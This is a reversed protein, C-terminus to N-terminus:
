AIKRQRADAKPKASKLPTHAPINPFRAPLVIFFRETGDADFSSRVGYGKNKLDWGFGSRVTAETWPNNGGSLGDQLEAMTAGKARRLMDLLMAQKSGERCPIPEHGLPELNTGRARGPKGAGEKKMAKAVTKAAAVAPQAKKYAAILKMTRTVGTATDAFRRIPELKLAEALDNYLEVRQPGTLAKVETETKILNANM